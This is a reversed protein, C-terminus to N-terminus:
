FPTPPHFHILRQREHDRERHEHHRHKRKMLLLLLKGHGHQRPPNGLPVLQVLPKARREKWM